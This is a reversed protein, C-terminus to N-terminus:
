EQAMWRRGPAQACCRRCLVPDKVKKGAVPVPWTGDPKPGMRRVVDETSGCNECTTM